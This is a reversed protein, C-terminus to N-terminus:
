ILELFKLLKLFSIISKLFICLIWPSLWLELFAEIILFLVWYPAQYLIRCLILLLNNHKLLSCLTASPQLTRWATRQPLPPTQCRHSLILGNTSLVPFIPKSPEKQSVAQYSFPLWLLLQNLPASCYLNDTFTCPFNFKQPIRYTCRLYCQIKQRCSECLDESGETNTCPFKPFHTHPLQAWRAPLIHGSLIVMERAFEEKLITNKLSLNVFIHQFIVRPLFKFWALDTQM